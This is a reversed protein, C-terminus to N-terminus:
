APSESAHAAGDVGPAHAELLADDLVDVRAARTWVLACVAPRDPHIARLVARYAAMQRLYLVPTASPDAPPARNTKYDAILVRDPLVALRDVLGGVVQGGIVGTLPVEARSGPGFLPALAPDALIALVEAAIEEADPLSQRAVWRAVAEPRAFDPLDPLHQLLEHTARGREFRAGGAARMDLPSAAEPVPGLAADQPRSPALRGPRAAEAPPAAARWVPAAGAWAPLPPADQSAGMRPPVVPATQASTVFRREGWAEDGKGFAASEAGDLAAMGAEVLRYWTPASPPNGPTWGCVVLRDEARTLAVYLLRNEEEAQRAQMEQAITDVARCRLGMTPAYLPVDGAWFLKDRGAPGFMTDPLIVLPAQLGKAGHVTMIRVAGAGANGEPERRAEIASGRLWHVFGQLSPPNAQAYSLAAALLEDVPEGAEPGFRALLRARGGHAGLAESLLAHPPAYDVRAFLAALFAAAAAWCAREGARARLAQWLTGARGHALDFLDTESVGGLPSRLVGALALDDDPALLMDCLALLDAVAPQEALVMRDVGAVPVGAAKLARVLSRAFGGRDRARLLVMVDGPALPRGQSELMVSGDTQEGIWDALRRALTEPASLPRTNATPAVADGLEVAAPRPALPWLEVCGAHGAREAVHRLATGDPVVGAAAEPRAFVADVLALVPATSRFSVDLEVTEFRAGGGRVRTELRARNEDFSQAVAGQFSFISQKRDGVAFVTRAGARGDADRAGAGAFFEDTLAHAIAWQAPATDQVEDLLLHDLGGDLKYLVWAAGPDRMLRDARAILDDFDLHGAQEKRAGYEALMPRALAILAASRRAVGFAAIRDKVELVREAEALFPAALHPRADLLKKNVFSTAAYPEGGKKLFHATWDDWGAARQEADLHLWAQVSAARAACKDAGNEAVERAAARLAPEAQWNVATEIVEAESAATVGVARRVAAEADAGFQRGARQLGALLDGFDGLACIPAIAAVAGLDAEGALVAELAGALTEAADQQEILAFHPSIAAELPFRRLLSQCFAHITSVRMGGPQDLVHAFLARARAVTPPTPACTLDRLDQALRAEDAVVWAGLRRRLRLAMEAAAAKTFTLCQIREPAAGALLLRLVRDTLLKTKGSGASAGVFASVAPDSARGQAAEARERPTM